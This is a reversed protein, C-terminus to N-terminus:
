KEEERLIYYKGGYDRAIIQKTQLDYHDYWEMFLNTYTNRNSLFKDYEERSVEKFQEM